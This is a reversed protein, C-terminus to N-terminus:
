GYTRNLESIADNIERTLMAHIEYQDTMGALEAALRDPINLLGSKVIAALEGLDRKVDEVKVLTKKQEELALTERNLKVLAQARQIEALTMGGTRGPPDPQRGKQRPTAPQDSADKRPRGGNRGSSSPAPTAEVGDPQYALAIRRKAANSNLIWADKQSNWDIGTIRHYEDLVATIRGSKVAKQVATLSVGIRRAFERASVIDTTDTTM